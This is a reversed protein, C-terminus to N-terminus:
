PEVSLTLRTFLGQSTVNGDPESVVINKCTEESPLM